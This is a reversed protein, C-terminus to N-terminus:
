STTRQFKLLRRFFAKIALRRVESGAHRARPLDAPYLSYEAREYESLLTRAPQSAIPLTESLLDVREAPTQAPLVPQRLLWLAQGLSTFAREFPTLSAHQSWLHLWRPVSLNRKRLGKELRVPLPIERWRPRVFQLYISVLLALAVVGGVVVLTRLLRQQREAATLGNQVQSNNPNLASSVPTSEGSARRTPTPLQTDSSAGGLPLTRVPQSVTPEFEVWGLGTFYVEPWAHADSMHVVYQNSLPDYTGQAYGVSIRAPIGISRLLLVEASAYYNCYGQKLEFLFWAVPDKGAPIPPVTERYTINNRLWLTIANAKDYPDNMGSTIQLALQKFEPALDTPIELYRNIIETPYDTTTARLDSVTPVSISSRVHYVQGVHLPPNAILGAVDDKGDAATSILVQVPLSAWVPMPGAPMNQQNIRSTFVFEIIKRDKYDPYDVLYTFPTFNKTQFDAATWQGDVYTDYTRVQWYYRAGEPAPESPSVTFVVDNSLHSGTTLALSSGYFDQVVVVRAQLSSFADGIRSTLSAWPRMINNAWFDSISGTSGALAPISWSFVVLGAVVLLTARSLDGSTEPTFFVGDRQWEARKQLFTLRGLILLALLIFAGIYRLGDDSYHDYHNIVLLAVGSPIITMWPAAYRALYYGASLCLTWFLISMLLLFLIPDYVPKKQLFLTTAAVLRNGMSILRTHWDLGPNLTMGLLWPIGFLGYALALLKVVANSFKSAGLGIGFIVAVFALYQIVNLNKTWNTAVLRSAVILLAVILAIISWVDLWRKSTNGM